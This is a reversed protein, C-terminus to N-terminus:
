LTRTNRNEIKIHFLDCFFLDAFDYPHDIEVAQDLQSSSYLRDFFVFM